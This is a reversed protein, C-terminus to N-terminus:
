KAAVKLFNPDSYRKSYVKDTLGVTATFTVTGKDDVTTASVYPNAFHDDAFLNQILKGVVQRSTATGAINVCGVSTGPNFPDPGPCATGIAAGAGATQSQAALSVNGITVGAPTTAKLRRVVDSYLVEKAMTATITTQNASVGAYFAKVPALKRMQQNLAVTATNEKELDANAKAILAFQGCFLVAVTAVTAIGAVIFRRRLARLALVEIVETPLLNVSPLVPVFPAVPGQVAKAAKGEKADKKKSKTLNM